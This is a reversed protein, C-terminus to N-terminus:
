VFPYDRRLAEALPRPAADTPLVEGHRIDTVVWYTRDQHPHYRDFSFLYDVLLFILLGAALGVAQGLVSILSATRDRRLTRLSITLYNRLMDFPNTPAPLPPASLRRRGGFPRAFRLVDLWYGHRAARRGHLALRREFLEHLDGQIEEVEHANYCLELLAEALRPPQAPAGPHTPRNSRRKM